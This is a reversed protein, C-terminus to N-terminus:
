KGLKKRKLAGLFGVFGLALLAGANGPEPVSIATAILNGSGTTPFFEIRCTSGVAAGCSTTLSGPTTDVTLPPGSYGYRIAYTNGVESEFGTPAGIVRVVGDALFRISAICGTQGPNVACDAPGGPNASWVLVGEGPVTSRISGIDLDMQYNLGAADTAPTGTLTIFNPLNNPTGSPGVVAFDLITGSCEDSTGLTPTADNCVAFISGGTNATPSILLTQPNFDITPGLGLNFGLINLNVPNPVAGVAVREYQLGTVDFSLNFSLQNLDPPPNLFAASASSSASLAGAAALPLALALGLLKSKM